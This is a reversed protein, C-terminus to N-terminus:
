GAWASSLQLKPRHSFVGQPRSGPKAAVEKAGAVGSWEIAVNLRLSESLGDLAFCAALPRPLQWSLSCHVPQREDSICGAGSSASGTGSSFCITQYGLGLEGLLKHRLVLSASIRFCEDQAVGGMGLVFECITERPEDATSSRNREPTGDGRGHPIIRFGLHLEIGPHSSPSFHKEATLNPGRLLEQPRELRWGFLVRESHETWSSSSRSLDTLQLQACHISDRLKQNESQIVTRMIELYRTLDKYSSADEAASASPPAAGSSVGTASSGDDYKLSDLRASVERCSRSSLSDCQSSPTRCPESSLANSRATHQPSLLPGTVWCGDLWRGEQFRPIM